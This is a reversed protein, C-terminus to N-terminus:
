HPLNQIGSRCDGPFSGSSPLSTAIKRTILLLQLFVEVLCSPIRRSNNGATRDWVRDEAVMYLNRSHNRVQKVERFDGEEGMM